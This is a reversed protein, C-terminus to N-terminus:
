TAPGFLVVFDSWTESIPRGSLGARFLLHVCSIFLFTGAIQAGHLAQLQLRSRPTASAGGRRNAITAVLWVGAAYLAGAGVLQLAAQVSPRASISLHWLASVLFTTQIKLLIQSHGWSPYFVHTMLWRYASIHWTKWFQMPTRALLPFHFNEDLQFGMIRSLGIMMDTFGSFRIFVDVIQLMAFGWMALRPDLGSTAGGDHGWAHLTRVADSTYPAIALFKVAGWGIKTLHRVLSRPDVFTAPLYARYFDNFLAVPGAFVCPLFTMYLLFQVIRHGPVPSLERRPKSLAFDIARLLFFARIARGTWMVFAVNPRPLQREFFLFGALVALVLGLRVSRPQNVMSIAYVLALTLAYVPWSRAPLVYLLGAVSAALFAWERTGPVGDWAVAAPTAGTTTMLAPGGVAAAAAADSM